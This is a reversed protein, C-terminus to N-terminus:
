NSQFHLYRQLLSEFLIYDGDRTEQVLGSAAECSMFTRVNSDDYEQQQYNDQRIRKAIGKQRFDRQSRTIKKRYNAIWM